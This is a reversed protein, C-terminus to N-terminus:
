TSFGSSLGLFEQRMESNRTLTDGRSMDISSMHLLQRQCLRDQHHQQTKGVLWTVPIGDDLIDFLQTLPPHYEACARQVSRKLPKQISAPDFAELFFVRSAISAGIAEGRQAPADQLLLKFPDPM